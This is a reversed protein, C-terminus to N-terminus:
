QSLRRAHEVVVPDPGAAPYQIRSDTVDPVVAGAEPVCCQCQVVVDDLECGRVALRGPELDFLAVCDVDVDAVIYGEEDAGVPGLRDEVLYIRADVHDGDGLGLFCGIGLAEALLQVVGSLEAVLGDNPANRPVRVPAPIDTSIRARHRSTRLRM